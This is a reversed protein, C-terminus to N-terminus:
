PTGSGRAAIMGNDGAPTLPERGVLGDILTELERQDLIPKTVVGQFGAALFAQREADRAFATLAVAPISSYGPVARIAHLCQLGDVPAMRIDLMLLDPRSVDLIALAEDATECSSVVYKESLLLTLMDLIDRNDDVVLLRVTRM